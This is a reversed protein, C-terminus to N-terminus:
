INASMDPGNAIDAGMMIVKYKRYAVWSKGYFEVLRICTNESGFTYFTIYKGVIECFQVCVDDIWMPEDGSNQVEELTLKMKAIGKEKDYNVLNVIKATREEIIQEDTLFYYENTAKTKIKAIEKGDAFFAVEM